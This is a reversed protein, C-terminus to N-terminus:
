GAWITDRACGDFWTAVGIRIRRDGMKAVDNMAYARIYVRLSMQITSFDFRMLFLVLPAELYKNTHTKLAFAMIHRVATEKDVLTVM